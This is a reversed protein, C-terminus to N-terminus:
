YGKYYKTGNVLPIFCQKVIKDGLRKASNVDHVKHGWKNVVDVCGRWFKLCRVIQEGSQIHPLRFEVTDHGTHWNIADGHYGKNMRAYHTFTRGWYEIMKDNDGDFKMCQFVPNWIYFWLEDSFHYICNVHIHCGCRDDRMCDLQAETRSYIWKAFSYADKGRAHHEGLNTCDYECQQSHGSKKAGMMLATFYVTAFNMDNTIADRWRSYLTSITEVELSFDGKREWTWNVTGTVNERREDDHYDVEEACKTCYHVFKDDACWGDLGQVRYCDDNPQITEGCGICKLAVNRRAMYGKVISVSKIM